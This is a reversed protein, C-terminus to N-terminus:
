IRDIPTACVSWIIAIDQLKYKEFPIVPERQSDLKLTIIIWRKDRFVVHFVIMCITHFMFYLNSVYGPVQVVRVL